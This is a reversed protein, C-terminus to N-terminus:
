VAVTSTGLGVTSAKWAVGDCTTFPTVVAVLKVGVRCVVTVSGAVWGTRASNTTSCSGAAGPCPVPWIQAPFTVPTAEPVWALRVTGAPVRVSPHCTRQRALATLVAVM